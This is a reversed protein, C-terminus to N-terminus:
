TRFSPQAGERRCGRGRYGELKDQHLVHPEGLVDGTLGLVEKAPEQDFVRELPQSATGLVRLSHLRVCEEVRDVPRVQVFLPHRGGKLGCTTLSVSVLYKSESNVPSLTSSVGGSLKEEWRM